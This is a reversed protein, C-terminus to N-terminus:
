KKGKKGWGKTWEITSVPRAHFLHSLNGFVCQVLVWTGLFHWFSSFVFNLVDIM